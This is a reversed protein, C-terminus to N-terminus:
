VHARGIQGIPEHPQRAKIGVIRELVAQDFIPKVVPRGKELKFSNGLLAVPFAELNLAFGGRPLTRVLERMADLFRPRGFSSLGMVKFEDGFHPFGLFQTMATYFYGLSHPFYTRGLVSLRDGRAVAIAASTFDGLGDFSLLAMDTGPLLMRASMLHAAHHEVRAIRPRDFGLEALAEVDSRRNRQRELYNAVGTATSRGAWAFRLKRLLAATPSRPLTVVDVDAPALGAADLCHRIARHPFEASHKIRDFREEEVAAVLRGDVILAASSDGHSSSIGLVVRKKLSREM